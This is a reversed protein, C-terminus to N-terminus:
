GSTNENLRSRFTQCIRHAMSRNVGLKEEVERYTLGDVFVAYYIDQLEPTACGMRVLAEMAEAYVVLNSSPDEANLAYDLSVTRDNKYFRHLKTRAACAHMVWWALLTGKSPNYDM